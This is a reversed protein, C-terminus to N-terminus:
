CRCLSSLRIEGVDLGLHVLNDSSSLQGAGLAGVGRGCLEAVAVHLSRLPGKFGHALADLLLAELLVSWTLRLEGLIFRLLHTLLQRYLSHLNADKLFAVTLLGLEDDRLEVAFHDAPRVLCTFEPVQLLLQLVNCPLVRAGEVVNDGDKILDVAVLLSQYLAELAVGEANPLLKFVQRQLRVPLLHAPITALLRLLVALVVLAEYLLLTKLLDMCPAPVEAEHVSM